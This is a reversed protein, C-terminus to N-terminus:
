LCLHEMVTSTFREWTYDKEVVARAEDAMRMLESEPARQLGRLVALSGAIDDLPINKRYSTEYYGSQPTCVVPFGWSMCELITTPNPDARSASVFFDYRGAIEAMFKPDLERDDSIRQVGPIEPGHGIWGKPCDGTAQLIESLFDTGKRRDNMGIYLLGRRGPPSFREKVRPYRAVDVALDLRVMKAKWHRYASSEWRDWWYPGMIGFLVDARGMLRDVDDLFAANIHNVDSKPDCHLPTILATKRPRARGALTRETVASGGERHPFLPHGLFVDGPKLRCTVRESLHYLRTELAKALATYLCRTMEYPHRKPWSKFDEAEPTRNTVLAVPLGLRGLRSRVAAELRPGAMSRVLPVSHVLHCIM